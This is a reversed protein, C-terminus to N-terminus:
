LLICKSFYFICLDHIIVGFYVFYYGHLYFLDEEEEEEQTRSPPATASTYVFCFGAHSGREPAEKAGRM